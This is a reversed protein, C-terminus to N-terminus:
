ERGIPVTLPSGNNHRLTVTAIPVPTQLMYGNRQIAVTQDGATAEVYGNTAVGLVWVPDDDNRALRTRYTARGAAADSMTFCRTTGQVTGPSGPPDGAPLNILGTLCIDAPDRESVDVGLRVNPAEFALHSSREPSAAAGALGSADMDRPGSLVAFRSALAPDDPRPQWPLTTWGGRDPNAPLWGLQAGDADFAVYGELQPSENPDVLDAFVGYGFGAERTVGSSYVRELRSVEPVVLGSQADPCLVVGFGAEDVRCLDDFVDLRGAHQVVVRNAFPRDLTPDTWRQTWVRAPGDLTPFEVPGRLTGAVLRRFQSPGVEMEVQRM